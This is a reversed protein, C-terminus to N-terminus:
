AKLGYFGLADKIILGAKQMDKLIVEARTDKVAALTMIAKRAAVYKLAGDRFVEEAYTKLRESVEATKEERVSAISVHMGKADDWRFRPGDQKPVHAHRSNLSFVTSVGQEDKEVCLNSEAKRELQSGLHGRTKGIESSPNVHIICVVITDHLIALQHLRDVAAIAEVQDNPDRVLDAVGDILISHIGGCARKGRKIAHELLEFRRAVPVVAMRYSFLWPPKEALNVRCLAGAVHLHHDADSQETDLAVLAHGSPNMSDIQLTDGDRGTAAAIMAGVLASKATKAKGNIVILNGATGITKKSMEFIKRPPAPPREPDFLLRDLIVDMSDARGAEHIGQLREIAGPVDISGQALDNGLKAAARALAREHIAALCSTASAAGSFAISGDAAEPWSEWGMPFLKEFDPSVGLSRIEDTISFRNAVRGAHHVRLAATYIPRWRDDTFDEAPCLASADIGSLDNVVLWGVFASEQEPASFKM